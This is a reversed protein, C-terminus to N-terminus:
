SYMIDIHIVYNHEFMGATVPPSNASESEGFINTATASFTYVSGRELGSVHITEVEGSIYTPRDFRMSNQRDEGLVPTIIFAFGHNPPNVGSSSTSIRLTVEGASPGSEPTGFEPRAPVGLCFFSYIEKCIVHDFKENGIRHFVSGCSATASGEENRATVTFEYTIGVVLNPVRATESNLNDVTMGGRSVTSGEMFTYNTLVATLPLGGMHVFSWTVTIDGYTESESVSCSLEPVSIFLVM